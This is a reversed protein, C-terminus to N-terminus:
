KIIMKLKISVPNDRKLKDNSNFMDFFTSELKEHWQKTIKVGSPSLGDVFNFTVKYCTQKKSIM